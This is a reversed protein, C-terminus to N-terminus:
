QQITAVTNLLTAKILPKYRDFYRINSYRCITKPNASTETRISKPKITYGRDIKFVRKSDPTINLQIFTDAKNPNTNPYILTLSDNSYPTLTIIGPQESKNAGTIVLYKEKSSQIAKLIQYYASKLNGSRSEGNVILPTDRHFQASNPSIALAGFSVIYATLKAAQPRTSFNASSKAAMPQSLNDNNRIASLLM